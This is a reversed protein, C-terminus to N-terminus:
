KRRVHPTVRSFVFGDNKHLEVNARLPSFQAQSTLVQSRSVCLSKIRLDTIPAMIPHSPQNELKQCRVCKATVSRIVQRGHPIWYRRNLLCLLQNTGLRHGNKEHCDKVLLETYRHSNLLINPHRADYPIHTAYHLRGGVRLIGGNLIPSLKQSKVPIESNDTLTSVEERNFPVASPSYELHLSEDLRDCERHSLIPFKAQHTWRPTPQRGTCCTHSRKTASWSYKM